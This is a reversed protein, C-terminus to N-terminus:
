RARQSFYKWFSKTSFLGVFFGLVVFGIMGTEGSVPPSETNIETTHHSSIHGRIRPPRLMLNVIIYATQFVSKGGDNKSKITPWTQVKGFVTNKQLVMQLISEILAISLRRWSCSCSKDNKSWHMLVKVYCTSESPSPSSKLVKKSFVDLSLFM